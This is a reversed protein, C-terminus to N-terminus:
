REPNAFLAPFQWKFAERALSLCHPCETEELRITDGLQLAKFYVHCSWVCCRKAVKHVSCIQVPPRHVVTQAARM